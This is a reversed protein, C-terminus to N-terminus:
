HLLCFFFRCIDKIAEAFTIYQFFVAQAPVSLSFYPHFSGIVVTDQQVAGFLHLRHRVLHHQHVPLLDGGDHLIGGGTLPILLYVKLAAAQHRAEDVQMDM